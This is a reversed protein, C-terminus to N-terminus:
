TGEAKWEKIKDYIPKTIRVASNVLATGQVHIGVVYRKDKKRIWAGSGSQGKYTDIEYFLTTSTVHKIRRAHFWQARCQEDKDKPYGALSLKSKRLLDDGFKAFGFYGLRDGSYQYDAPLLIAGLDYSRDAEQIWGDVSRFETSVCSPYPRESGNRGPIVEISAAWGGLDERSHVCHGATIVTRPGVLWGTGHATNGDQATIVLSCICRWPFDTTNTIQVRDEQGIVNWPQSTALGGSAGSLEFLMELLQEDYHDVPEIEGDDQGQSDPVGIEGPSSPVAQESAYDDHEARNVKAETKTNSMSAWGHVSEVTV